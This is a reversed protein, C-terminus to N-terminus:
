IKGCDHIQGGFYKIHATTASCTRAEAFLDISIEVKVL